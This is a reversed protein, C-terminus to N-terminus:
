SIGTGRGQLLYPHHTGNRVLLQFFNDISETDIGTAKATEDVSVAGNRGAALVYKIVDASYDEFFNSVGEVLNYL